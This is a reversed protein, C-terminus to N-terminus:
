TTISNMFILIFNNNNYVNIHEDRHIFNLQNSIIQFNKLTDAIECNHCVQLVVEKFNTKTLRCM